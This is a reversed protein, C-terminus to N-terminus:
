WKAPSAPWVPRTTFFIGENIPVDRGLWDKWHAHRHFPWQCFRTFFNMKKKVFDSTRDALESNKNSVKLNRNKPMERSRRSTVHGLGQQSIQRKINVNTRSSCAGSTLSKGCPKRAVQFM